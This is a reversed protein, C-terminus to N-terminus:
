EELSPDYVLVTNLINGEFDQGGLVYIKGDFPVLACEFIPIPPPTIEVWTMTSTNIRFAFFAPDGKGTMLYIQDGIAAVRPHEWPFPLGEEFHEWTDTTAEYVDLWAVPAGEAGGQGGLVYIKSGVAIADFDERGYEIPAVTTWSGTVMDFVDVAKVYDWAENSLSDDEGSILYVKTGIVGFGADGHGFTPAGPLRAWTPSEASLDLVYGGRFRVKEQTRGCLAFIKGDYAAICPMQYANEPSPGLVEWKGVAPDFVEIPAVNKEPDRGGVVYIKGDLVLARCKYRAVNLAPGEVWLDAASAALGMVMSILIAVLLTRKM